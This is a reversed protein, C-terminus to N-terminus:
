ITKEKIRIEVRRNQSRHRPSDNPVIPRSDGNGKVTFGAPDVGREKIFYHLVSMARATSLEWNSPYLPSHIPSNDTHGDIEVVYSPHRKILEAVKDLVPTTNKLIVASAPVFSVKERMTIVIDKDVSTVTVDNDLKQAKIFADLAPAQDSAATKMDLEAIAAALESMEPASTDSPTTEKDILRREPAPPTEPASKTMEAAAIESIEPTSTDTAASEKDTMQSRAAPPQPQAKEASKEHRKSMVFFMLFCVLLLSMLDTMTILWLNDESESSTEEVLKKYSENM